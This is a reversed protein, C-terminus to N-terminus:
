RRQRDDYEQRVQQITQREVGLAEQLEQVIPLLQAEKDWEKPVLEGTEAFYVSGYVSEDGAKAYFTLEPRKKLAPIIDRLSLLVGRSFTTEVGSRIFWTTRGAQVKFMVKFLEDGKYVNKRLRIDVLRGTLAPLYVPTQTNSDPDWFHWPYVRGQEDKGLDVYLYNPEPSPGLGEMSQTTM